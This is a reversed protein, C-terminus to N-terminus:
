SSGRSIGEMRGENREKSWKRGQEMRIRKDYREMKVTKIIEKNKNCGKKMSAHDMVLNHKSIKGAEGKFVNADLPM